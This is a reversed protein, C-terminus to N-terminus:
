PPKAVYVHRIERLSGLARRFRWWNLYVKSVLSRLEQGM